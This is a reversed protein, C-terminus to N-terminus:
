PQGFGAAALLERGAPSLVFDRFARGGAANGGHRLAVVLYPNVAAAAQPFEIGRVASGATRVDTRYVLALDVEGSLLKALTAKVDQELTDPRPTVGAAAFVKTAADGCPVQPACIAVRLGPRAFDALGRVGAPNGPAVAIMLTNTAFVTATGDAAGADTATKMTAPSAAAFVDAPAGDAVQRALASSAGFSFRVQTGPRSKGFAAAIEGFPEVLSSAALVTV